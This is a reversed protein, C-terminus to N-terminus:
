SSGSGKCIWCTVTQYYQRWPTVSKDVRAQQIKGSGSCLSCTSAM